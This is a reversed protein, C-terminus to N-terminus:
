PVCAGVGPNNDVPRCTGSSCRPEGSTRCLPRCAKGSGSEVCTHGPACQNSFDCSSGEALTGSGVCVPGSTSPYCSLPSACDQAFPDCRPSPAGCVLPLEQTGPLRRVTNCEDQTGCQSTAHCLRRCAFGTGGDAQPADCLLGQRCTDYTPGGDTTPAQTCATGEDATGAAVCERRTVDGREVYTCRLGNACNQLVVDCDAAFCRSGIGGDALDTYHCSEGSGCGEQRPVNCAFASTGGGGGDVGGDPDGTVGADEPTGPGPKNDDDCGGALLALVLTGTLMVLRARM